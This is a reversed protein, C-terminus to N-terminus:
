FTMKRLSIQKYIDDRRSRRLGEKVFAHVGEEFAFERAFRRNAETHVLKFTKNFVRVLVELLNDADDDICRIKKPDLRSALRQALSINTASILCVFRTVGVHVARGFKWETRVSQVYKHESIQAQQTEVFKHLFMGTDDHLVLVHDQITQAVLVHRNAHTREIEDRGHHRLLIQVTDNSTEHGM